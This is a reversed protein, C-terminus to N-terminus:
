LSKLWDMLKRNTIWSNSPSAPVPSELKEMAKRKMTIDARAYMGTTKIDEHGLIAQIVPLPNEAQLLHMAKSHRLTHPSIRDPWGVRSDDPQAAHKKLIYRIGSRSLPNGHCNIFLYRSQLQSDMFGHEAIYSELLSVTGSMLPVLRAKRGKGVIKVHPPATLRIDSVRLDIIEQVRAGTDYLVSLLTADRRGSRTSLDPRGLLLRVADVSFHPVTKQQCRKFPIAQIRQAPLIFESMRVQVFRFFSHLAALRQNRTRVSANTCSELDDLFTEIVEPTIRALTIRHSMWSYRKECFRILLTFADRYSRVTNISYGRQGPLYEALFETLMHAFDTPKM